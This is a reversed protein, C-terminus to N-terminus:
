NSAIDFMKKEARYETNWAEHYVSSHVRAQAFRVFSGCVSRNSAYIRECSQSWTIDRERIDFHTVACKIKYFARESSFVIFAATISSVPVDPRRSSRVVEGLAQSEELESSKGAKLIFVVPSVMPGIGGGPNRSSVTHLRDGDGSANM